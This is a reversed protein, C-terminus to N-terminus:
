TVPNKEGPVVAYAYESKLDEAPPSTNQPQLYGDGDFRSEDLPMVSSPGAEADEQIQAPPPPPPVTPIPVEYGSIITDRSFAQEGQKPEEQQFQDVPQKQLKRCIPHYQINLILYAQTSPFM